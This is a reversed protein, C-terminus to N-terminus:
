IAIRLPELANPRTSGVITTSRIPTNLRITGHVNTHPISMNEIIPTVFAAPAITIAMRYPKKEPAHSDLGICRARYAVSHLALKKTPMERRPGISAYRELSM